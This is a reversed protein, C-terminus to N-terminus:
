EFAKGQRSGAELLARNSLVYKNGPDKREAAALKARARDYEGRLMYSYGQNNLIEVTPGVIAIAQAYARDAFDFRRLQDYSAALGLWAEADRPHMEAARRYHKEAVGYNKDRYYKKGLSLDDTPDSGLMGQEALQADSGPAASAYADAGPTSLDASTLSNSDTTCGALWLGTVALMLVRFIDMRM